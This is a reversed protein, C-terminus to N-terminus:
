LFRAPGHGSFGVLWFVMLDSESFESYVRLEHRWMTHGGSHESSHQSLEQRKGGASCVISLPFVLVETVRPSPAQTADAWMKLWVWLDMVQLRLSPIARSVAASPEMSYHVPLSNWDPPLLYKMLKFNTLILPVLPPLPSIFHFLCLLVFSCVTFHVLETLINVLIQFIMIGDAVRSRLVDPIEPAWVSGNGPPLFIAAEMRACLGVGLQGTQPRKQPCKVEWVVM